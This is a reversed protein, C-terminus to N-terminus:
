RKNIHLEYKLDRKNLEELLQKSSIIDLIDQSAVFHERAPKEKNLIGQKMVEVCEPKCSRIEKHTLIPVDLKLEEKILYKVRDIQSQTPDQGGVVSSWGFRVVKGKKDIGRGGYCISLALKNPNTTGFIKRARSTESVTGRKLGHAWAGRHIPIYQLIETDNERPIYFNYSVQNDKITQYTGRKTGLDVHLVIAKCEILPVSKNKGTEAEIFKKTIKYM